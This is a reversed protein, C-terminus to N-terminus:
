DGGGGNDFMKTLRKFLKDQEQKEYEARSVIQCKVEKPLEVDIIIPVKRGEIAVFHIEGYWDYFIMKGCEQKLENYNEPRMVVVCDIFDQPANKVKSQYKNYANIIDEIM